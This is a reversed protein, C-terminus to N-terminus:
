AWCKGRIVTSVMRQSVGFQAAIARQPIGGQAYIRRIEAAADMSLKTISRNRMQAKQTAWRCNGPEYNGDNDIRDISLGVPRPGMDSLFVEFDDWEKAFTKGAYNPGNSACRHPHAVRHRAMVWSQYAGAVEAGRDRLLAM